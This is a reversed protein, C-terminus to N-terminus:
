KITKNLKITKSVKRSVNNCFNRLFNIIKYFNKGLVLRFYNFCNCGNGESWIIQKLSEQLM